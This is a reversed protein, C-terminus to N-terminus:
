IRKVIEKEIEIPTKRNLEEIEDGKFVDGIRVSKNNKKLSDYVNIITDEKYEYRLAVNKKFFKIIDTVSKIESKGYNNRISEMNDKVYESYLSTILGFSIKCGYFLNNWDINGPFVEPFCCVTRNKLDRVMKKITDKHITKTVIDMHLYVLDVIEKLVFLTNYTDNKIEIMNYFKTFEKVFKYLMDVGSKLIVDRDVKEDKVGKDDRGGKFEKELIHSICSDNVIWPVKVGYSL